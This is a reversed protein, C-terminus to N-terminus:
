YFSTRLEQLDGLHVKTVGPTIGPRSIPVPPLGLAARAQAVATRLETLHVAKIAKGVLTADTFAAPALGAAARLSNTLSRVATTDVARIVNDPRVPSLTTAVDINSIASVTGNTAHTSRVAYVYAKTADRNPDIFSEATTAGIPVWQGNERRLVEHSYVDATSSWRITIANASNNGNATVNLPAGFPPRGVVHAITETRTNEYQSGPWTEFAAHFWHTGIALDKVEFSVSTEASLHREGMVVNGNSYLRLIGHPQPAGPETVLNVTFEVASGSTSTPPSELSLTLYRFQCVNFPRIVEDTTTSLFFVDTRGDFDHDGALPRATTGGATGELPTRGMSNGNGDNLVMGFATTDMSLVLDPYLDENVDAAVIDTYKLHQMDSFRLGLMTFKGTGDNHLFGAGSGVGFQNTTTEMSIGLDLSTNAKTFQGAVLRLKDSVSPVDSSKDPTAGFAGGANRYFDVHSSPASVGAGVAIVLDTWGDADFDGTAVDGLPGSPIFSTVNSEKFVHVAPDGPTIPPGAVVVELKGDQDFDATTIRTVADVYPIVYSPGNSFGGDNNAPLIHLSACSGSLRCATLDASQEVAVIDLRGDGTVDALEVDTARVAPASFPALYVGEDNVHVNAAFSTLGAAVTVIDLDGDNGLDGVAYDTLDHGAPVSDLHGFIPVECAARLPQAGVAFLCVLVWLCLARISM